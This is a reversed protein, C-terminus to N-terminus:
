LASDASTSIVSKPSRTPTLLDELLWEVDELFCPLLTGMMMTGAAAVAVMLM